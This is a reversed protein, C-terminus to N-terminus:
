DVGRRTQNGGDPQRAHLSKRWAVYPMTVLTMVVFALLVAAPVFEKEPFSATAVAIAVAPHRSATALALVSRDEERPGGLLQGVVLCLVTAVGVALVTGDGLLGRMSPWAKLLIPVLSIILLFIAVTSLTSGFRDALRPWLERISMGLLLPVLVSAAVIKLIDWRRVYFDVIGLQQFIEMVMPIIVIACLSAAFFLGIVYGQGDVLKIQKNPLVPPVPALSLAVLAIEIEPRLELARVFSFLLMPAVVNMAFLSRALLAPRRFLFFADSLRCQMGITLVMLALSGTMVLRIASAFEM